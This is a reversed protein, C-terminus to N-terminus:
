NLIHKRLLRELHLSPLEKKEALIKALEEYFPKLHQNIYSPIESKIFPRRQRASSDKMKKIQFERFKLMTYEQRKEIKWILMWYLYDQKKLKVGKTVEIDAIDDVWTKIEDTWVHGEPEEWFMLLLIHKLLPDGLARITQLANSRNQPMAEVHKYFEQSKFLETFGRIKYQM